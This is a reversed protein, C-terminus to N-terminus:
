LLFIRKKSLIVAALSDAEQHQLDVVKGELIREEEYGLRIGAQVWADGLGARVLRRCLGELNQQGGLLLFVREHEQLLKEIPCDRGHASALYLHEWSIGLRACLCSVTSVGPYMQVDPGSKGKGIQELLSRCGSYFGIDGSYIVAVKGYEPHSKIWELVDKGLYIPERPKEGIWKEADQLMRPAGLVAESAKLAELAEWTIQKGQGMGVGILSLRQRRKQEQKRQGLYKQGAPRQGPEKKLEEAMKELEKRAGAAFIGGEEKEQREMVIVQIGCAKAAEVKERFGGQSGSEKTVLWGADVSHILACNLEQSFPGQMAIIYKGAVGLKECDAIVQSSPLVRVYLRGKLDSSQAFVALEKSGTALLVPKEDKRLLKVAEEPTNVTHIWSANEGGYNERERLVRLYSVGKKKCAASIQVTAERAYPHTADLVLRPTEQEFLREIGEGDLAGCRVFLCPKDALLNQGYETTVSVLTLLGLGAAYEALERGETTGGFVIVEVM